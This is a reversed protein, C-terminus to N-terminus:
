VFTEHSVRLHRILWKDESPVQCEPSVWLLRLLRNYVGDEELTLHVTKSNCDSVYFPFYPLSM